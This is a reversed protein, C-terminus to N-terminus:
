QKMEAVELGGNGDYRYEKKSVEKLKGARKSTLVVELNLLDKQFFRFNYFMIWDTCNQWHEYKLIKWSQGSKKFISFSARWQCDNSELLISCLTDNKFVSKVKSDWNDVLGVITDNTTNDLIFLVFEGPLFGPLSDKRVSVNLSDNSFILRGNQAFTCFPALCLLCTFLKKM